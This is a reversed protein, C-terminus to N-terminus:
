LHDESLYKVINQVMVTGPPGPTLILVDLTGCMPHWHLRRPETDSVRWANHYQDDKVAPVLALCGLNHVGTSAHHLIMRCGYRTPSEYRSICPLIPRITLDGPRVHLMCHSNFTSRPGKHWSSSVIRYENCSTLQM